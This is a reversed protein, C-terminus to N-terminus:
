RPLKVALIDVKEINPPQSLLESASAMLAARFIRKSAQTM